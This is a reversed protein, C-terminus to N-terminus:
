EQPEKQGPVELAVDSLPFAVCPHIYNHTVDALRRKDFAAPTFVEGSLLKSHCFGCEGSRCRSPAAIGARELAVLLSENAACPLERIEGRTVVKMTFAAKGTGPYGAQEAPEKCEGFLEHRVRRAPLKLNAIELDCFEYMAQPGCLFISYDGKPAYKQVLDATLLGLEYGPAPEDSLVHVVKVKDTREMLADFEEKLLIDQQARSGYLLTLRCGETGDAIACALSYFPTIGSGGALGIIEKADRLEEYTFNGEPGTLTVRGGEKWNDLIYESAFGGHTRKVTLTYSGKPADGPGSRISYPRLLRSGGIALYVCVYQGASFYALSDCGKEKDPVLTFSKADGGHVEVKQIRTYQWDPHFARMLRNVPYDKPLPTDPAKEIAANREPMINLFGRPDLNLNVENAM